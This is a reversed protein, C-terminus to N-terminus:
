RERIPTVRATRHEGTRLNWVLVGTDHTTIIATDREIGLGTAYADDPLNITLRRWTKDALEFVGPASTLVLVRDKDCAVSLFAGAPWDKKRELTSDGAHAVLRWKGRELVRLTGTGPGLHALSWTAWLRGEDDSALGTAPESDNEVLSQKGSALDISWLGGGWEGHDIAIFLQGDHVALASPAEIIGARNWRTRDVTLETWHSDAFTCVLLSRGLLVCGTDTAALHWQAPQDAVVAPLPVDLTTQDSEMHLLKPKNAQTGFLIQRRSSEAVDLVVDLGGHALPELTAHELSVVFVRDGKVVWGGNWRAPHAFASQDRVPAVIPGIPQRQAALLAIALLL